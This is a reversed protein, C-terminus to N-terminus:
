GFYRYFNDIRDVSERASVVDKFSLINRFFRSYINQDSVPTTYLDTYGSILGAAQLVSAVYSPKTKAMQAIVLVDTTGSKYLGLIYDKKTEQKYEQEEKSVPLDDFLTPTVNNQSPQRTQM